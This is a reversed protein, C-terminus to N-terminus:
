QFMQCFLNFFFYCASRVCEYKYIFIQIIWALKWFLEHKNENNFLHGNTILLLKANCNLINYIFSLSQKLHRWVETNNRPKNITKFWFCKRVMHKRKWTWLVHILFLLVCLYSSPICYIFFHIFLNTNDESAFMNINGDTQLFHWLDLSGQGNRFCERTPFFIGM